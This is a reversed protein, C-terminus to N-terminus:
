CDELSIPVEQIRYPIAAARQFPSANRVHVARSEVTADAHETALVICYTVTCLVM